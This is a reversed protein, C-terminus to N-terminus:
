TCYESIRRRRHWFKLRDGRKFFSSWGAVPGLAHLTVSSISGYRTGELLPAFWDNEVRMLAENRAGADDRAPEPLPPLVVLHPSDAAYAASRVASILTSGSDPLPHASIGTALALGRAAPDDSWVAACRAFVRPRLDLGTGWFWLSNVTPAGRQERSDNCPHDHLLMQAENLVGRWRAQEEGKPLHLAVDRGAAEATPTTQVRPASAVREYWREPHPALFVIGTEAFHANLAAVLQRAEDATIALQSSDALLVRDAHLRLHVPDARLWGHAGPECGDGRLAFPALALEMDNGGGFNAALWREVSGGAIRTRKGRAMLIELAPLSLEHLPTGAIAPWLLRSVVLHCKMAPALQASDLMGAM